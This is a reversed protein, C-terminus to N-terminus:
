NLSSFLLWLRHIFFNLKQVQSICFIGGNEVRQPFTLGVVMGATQGDGDGDDDNDAM